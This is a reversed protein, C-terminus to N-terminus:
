PAAHTRVEIATKRVTIWDDIVDDRTGDAQWARVTADLVDGLAADDPRVAWALHEETLPRFLGRLQKEDSLFGGTLRWIGPADQIWADIRGGRLAAVGADTDDFGQRTAAALAADAYAESTTARLFGVRVGARDLAGPAALRDYDAARVLAMQGVRLYPEIFRARRAREATMSMGSMVVDARGDGLAPLLEEWPLEIFIVPRGLREGLRRAFDPEVGALAGDDKFALPPYIPAIAVRLAAGAGDGATRGGGATAVCGALAAVCGALALLTGMGQQRTM